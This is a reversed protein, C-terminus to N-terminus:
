LAGGLALVAHPFNELHGGSRRQLHALALLPRAARQKLTGKFDVRGFPRFFAFGM